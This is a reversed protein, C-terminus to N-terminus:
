GEMEMSQAIELAKSFRLIKENLIKKQISEKRLGCVFRDWLAEDLFNGIECHNLFKKLQATFDLVTESEVCFRNHFNFREAIVLPKPHLYGKLIDVLEENEKNNPKEPTLLNRLLGYTEPGIVTLLM